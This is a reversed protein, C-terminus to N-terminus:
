NKENKVEIQTITHIRNEAKKTGNEVDEQELKEALHLQQLLGEIDEELRNIQEQVEESSTRVRGCGVCRGKLMSSEGCECYVIQIM